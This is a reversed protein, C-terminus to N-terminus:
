NEEQIRWEPDEELIQLTAQLCWLPHPSGEQLPHPLVLLFMPVKHSTIHCLMDLQVNTYTHTHTHIHVSPSTGPTHANNGFCAESQTAISVTSQNARREPVTYKPYDVRM